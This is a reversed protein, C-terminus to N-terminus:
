MQEFISRAINNNGLWDTAREAYTFQDIYHGDCEDALRRAGDYVTTPDGVLHCTGGHEEILVVKEQSTSAPMVTVFPVDILGAFYAESIATSGSSAELGGHGRSGATACGM